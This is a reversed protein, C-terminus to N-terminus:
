SFMRKFFAKNTLITYKIYQSGTGGELIRVIGLIIWLFLWCVLFLELIALLIQM